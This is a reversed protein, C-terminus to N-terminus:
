NHREAVATKVIEFSNKLAEFVKNRFSQQLDTEVDQLLRKADVTVMEEKWISQHAIEQQASFLLRDIDAETVTNGQDRLDAVQAVIESVKNTELLELDLIVEADSVTKAPRKEAVMVDQKPSSMASSPTKVRNKVADKQVADKSSQEAPNSNGVLREEVDFKLPFLNEITDENQIDVLVPQQNKVNEGNFFISVAFLIGVVSAAIGIRWYLASSKNSQAVTDLRDSLHKWSTASPEITRKELTEKINDEWNM